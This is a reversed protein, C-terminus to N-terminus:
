WNEKQVSSLQFQFNAWFLCYCSCYFLSLSSSLSFFISKWFTGFKKQRGISCQAIRNATSIWSKKRVGFRIIKVRIRECRTYTHLFSPLIFVVCCVGLSSSLRSNFHAYTHILLTFARQLVRVCLVFACRLIYVISVSLFTRIITCLGHWFFTESYNFGDNYDKQIIINKQPKTFGDVFVMAKRVVAFFISNFHSWGKDRQWEIRWGNM